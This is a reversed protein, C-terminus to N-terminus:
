VPLLSFLLLPSVEEFVTNLLTMEKQKGNRKKSYKYFGQTRMM